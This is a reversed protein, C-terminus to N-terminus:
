SSASLWPGLRLVDAPNALMSRTMGLAEKLLVDQDWPNTVQSLALMERVSLTFPYYFPSVTATRPLPMDSGYLLRGYLERHRILRQLHGYRNIQSLAAVDAYLNPFEATLRLYRRHNPEGGNRGNSGAHAAIVTVGHRLPLRLREPDALEHRPSIFSHEKGTHSLLPMGLVALRRYFPILRPDALDIQQISPLLKLAVAGDAVAQDLRDYADKRYPNISAAFLLNPFRRTAAALYDNPVYVQTEDRNLEGHRVVGDLALVVAAAVMRSQAVWESLRRLVLIDGEQELERETVGFSRLFVPYRLNRRMRRSVFCGSGGAGIGAAHCHCDILTKGTTM